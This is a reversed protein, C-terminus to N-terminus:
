FDHAFGNLLDTQDLKAVASLLKIKAHKMEEANCSILRSYKNLSKVEQCNASHFQNVCDSYDIESDFITASCSSCRESVLPKSPRSIGENHCSQVRAKTIKKFDEELEKSKIKIENKPFNYIEGM